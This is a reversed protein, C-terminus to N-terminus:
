HLLAAATYIKALRSKAFKKINTLNSDVPTGAGWMVGILWLKAILPNKNQPMDIRYQALALKDAKKSKSKIAGDKSIEYNDAIYKAARNLLHQAVKAQAALDYSKDNYVFERGLVKRANSPLIQWLGFAKSGGNLASPNFASEGAAQATMYARLLKGDLGPVSSIASMAKSAPTYYKHAKGYSKAAKPIRPLYSAAKHLLLDKTTGAPKVQSQKKRRTKIGGEEVIEIDAPDGEEAPDGGEYPTSSLPDNEIFTTSVNGKTPQAYDVDKGGLVKWLSHNSYVKVPKDTYSSLVGMRSYFDWITMNFAATGEFSVENKDNTFVDINKLGESQIKGIFFGAVEAADDASNFSILLDALRVRTYFTKVDTVIIPPPDLPADKPDEKKTTWHGKTMPLAGGGFVTTITQPTNNMPAGVKQSESLSKALKRFLPNM